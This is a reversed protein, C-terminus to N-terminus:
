DSENEGGSVEEAALSRPEEETAPPEHPAVKETEPPPLSPPPQDQEGPLLPPPGPSAPLSPTPTEFVPPSEAAEEAAPAALPVTSDAAPVEAAVQCPQDSHASLEGQTLSGDTGPASDTTGVLASSSTIAASPDLVGSLNHPECAEAPVPSSDPDMVRRLPPPPHPPPPLSSEMTLDPMGQELDSVGQELDPTGQEPGAPGDGTRDSSAGTAMLSAEAYGDEPPQPAPSAPAPAAAAPPPSLDPKTEEPGPPFCPIRHLYGYGIGCGLSGEGGWAGNPTVAIERCKDLESNYVLLKLPKGEYLEILNYFDESEQMVQDAGVIYDTHPTLGALDAPSNPEINLVHWVHEHAGQFSCFRVSAGLLGQGGWMNSPVVEVERVKAVKMSYVELKVAKEVNAKLLDKLTDNERNLRTNGVTLIFDFFPELGAKQAPSDDQVGHIHYGESGGGSTSHASQSGGM